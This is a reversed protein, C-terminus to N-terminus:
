FLSFTKFVSEGQAGALWKAYIHTGNYSVNYALPTSLCPTPPRYVVASFSFFTPLSSASKIALIYALTMPIHFYQMMDAATTDKIM